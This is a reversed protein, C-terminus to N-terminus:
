VQKELMWVWKDLGAAVEILLNATVCDGADEVPEVQKRVATTLASVRNLVASVVGPAEFATKPFEPIDSSAAVARPTACIVAGLQVAREALRDVYDQLDANLRDFQKHLVPFLPGKVNWHAVKVQGALDLTNLVLGELCEAVTDRVEYSLSNKTPTMTHAM